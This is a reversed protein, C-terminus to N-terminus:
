AEAFSSRGGMTGLDIMVGRRWLFAHRAVAHDDGVLSTGVVMGRNNIDSATGEPHDPDLVGLDTMVGDRWLFPRSNGHADGSAGVVEQRDNVATATSFSGDPLTGLDILRYHHDASGTAHVPSALLAFPTVAALTLASAAIRIQRMIVFEEPGPRTTTM